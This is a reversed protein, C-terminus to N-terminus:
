KSVNVCIPLLVDFKLFLQLFLLVPHLVVLAVVHLRFNLALVLGVLLLHNLRAHHLLHVLSIHQSLNTLAVAGHSALKLLNHIFLSSRLQGLQLVLSANLGFLVVVLLHEVSPLASDVSM